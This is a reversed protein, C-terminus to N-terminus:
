RPGVDEIWFKRPMTAAAFYQLTSSGTEETHQITLDYQGTSPQWLAQASVYDDVAVTLSGIHAMRSVSVGDVHLYLAWTGAASTNLATDLHVAYNRTGDADFNALSFDASGSATYSNSGTMSHSAQLGEAAVTAEQNDDLTMTPTVVITDGNTSTSIPGPFEEFWCLLGDSTRHVTYGYVLEATGTSTRTFTQQPYAASTPNGQTVVWLGATLTKSAYGTFTSETFNANVLADKQAATLGSTPNNKFLKMTYSPLNLSLTLFYDEGLNTLTLPV